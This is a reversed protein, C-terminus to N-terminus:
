CVHLMSRESRALDTLVAPFHTVSSAPVARSDGQVAEELVVVEGSVM